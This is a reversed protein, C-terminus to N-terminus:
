IRIEGEMRGFHIRCNSHLSALENRAVERRTGDSHVITWNFESLNRLGFPASTVEAVPSQFNYTDLEIHHPFLRTGPSLMILKSDHQGGVRMRPPFPQQKGCGWCPQLPQKSQPRALDFFNEAGCDCEFIADRVTCVERRWENEMVRSEPDRLGRTFARTFLDRLSQPYIEWLRVMLDHVGPIPRNRTDSPDFVFIPDLACMRQSGDPDNPDFPLELERRGKLPHGIMLIQYLVVALSFRDTMSNPRAELRGVEPAMFGWTGRIGGPKLNVDVNDTDAIRIDGTEPDFFFNGFNIDHYCLGAAHLMLFSQALLFGSTAIVRFTPQSRGTFLQNFSVFHDPKIPMLYGAYNTSGPMSVLDFPWLFHETPSGINIATKLREWVRADNALYERKYWKLAYHSKGVRVRYVEAQGGEGLLEEVTCASRMANALVVQGPRLMWDV